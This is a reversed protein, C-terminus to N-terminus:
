ILYSLMTSKCQLQLTDISDNGVQELLDLVSQRISSQTVLSNKSPTSLPLVLNVDELVHSPTDCALGGFLTEVGGLEMSTPTLQLTSIGGDICKQLNRVVEDPDFLSNVAPMDVAMSVRSIPKTELGFNALELPYQYSGKPLPGDKPDLFPDCPLILNDNDGDSMVTGWFNSYQVKDGSTSLPPESSTASYLRYLVSRGDHVVRRDSGSIIRDNWRVILRSSSTFASSECITGLFLTGGTSLLIRFGSKQKRQRKRDNRM